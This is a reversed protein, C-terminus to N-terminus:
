RFYQVEFSNFSNAATATGTPTMNVSDLSKTVREPTVVSSVPASVSQRECLSALEYKLQTLVTPLAIYLAM